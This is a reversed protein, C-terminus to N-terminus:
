LTINVKNAFNILEQKRAEPNGWTCVVDESMEKKIANITEDVHRVKGYECFEMEAIALVIEPTERNTPNKLLICSSDYVGLGDKKRLSIFGEVDLAIDNEMVGYGWQGVM